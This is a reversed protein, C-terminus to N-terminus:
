PWKKLFFLTDIFLGNLNVMHSDQQQYRAASLQHTFLRWREQQHNLEVPLPTSITVGNLDVASALIRALQYSTERTNNSDDINDTSERNNNKFKQRLQNLERRGKSRPSIYHRITLFIVIALLLLLALGTLVISLQSEVPLMPPEIDLLVTTTQLPSNINSM